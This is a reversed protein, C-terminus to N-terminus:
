PDRFENRAFRSISVLDINRYSWSLVKPFTNVYGEIRPCCRELTSTAYDDDVAVVVVFVVVIIIVVVVVVDNQADNKNNKDNNINIDDPFLLSPFWTLKKTLSSFHLLVSDKLAEQREIFSWPRPHPLLACHNVCKSWSGSAGPKIGPM